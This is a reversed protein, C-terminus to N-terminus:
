RQASLEPGVQRPGQETVIGGASVSVIQRCPALAPQYQRRLQDERRRARAMAEALTAGAALISEGGCRLGLTWGNQISVLYAGCGLTRTSMARCRAIAIAIARNVYGETATGWAGDPAMTLVTWDGDAEGMLRIQGIAASSMAMTLALACALKELGRRSLLGIPKCM